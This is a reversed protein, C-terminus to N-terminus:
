AAVAEQAAGSFREFARALKVDYLNEKYAPGNYLRAFEAWKRGKLAKHLAPDAEIFRSFAALQASEGSHMAAVFAAPSEYGLTQWHYGMIQFQGWSCAQEALFPHAATVQRANSLRSWEVAGGAYGGRKLNVVGPYRAALAPAADDPLLRYLQHREFLIVPRGDDLFGRGLSEVANVAMVAAVPVGLREAAKALDAQRLHQPNVAGLQLAAMTKPGAVGDAVLGVRRQFAIVAAETADGFWGDTAMKIGVAAFQRQLQIVHAGTEGKRM